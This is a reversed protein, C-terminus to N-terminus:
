FIYINYLHLMKHSTHMQHVHIFQAMDSCFLLNQLSEVNNGTLKIKHCIEEPLLLIIANLHDQVRVCYLANNLIYLFEQCSNKSFLLIGLCISSSFQFLTEVDKNSNSVRRISVELMHLTKLFHCICRPTKTSLLTCIKDFVVSTMRIQFQM